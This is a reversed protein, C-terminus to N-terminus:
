APFRLWDRTVLGGRMQSVRLTTSQGRPDISVAYGFLGPSTKSFERLWNQDYESPEAARGKWELIALPDRTPNGADDWCTGAPEPWVVLDKCVQAKRNAGAIQRVAVDLGIQTPDSLPGDTRCRPVLFGFAYLSVAERERGNWNERVIFTAFALLSERILSDLNDM